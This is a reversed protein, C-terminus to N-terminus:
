FLSTSIGENTISRLCIDVFYVICCIFFMFIVFLFGLLSVKNENTCQKTKLKTNDSEIKDNKLSNIM